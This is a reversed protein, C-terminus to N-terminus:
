VDNILYIALRILGIVIVVIGFIIWFVVGAAWTMFLIFLLSLAILISYGLFKRM